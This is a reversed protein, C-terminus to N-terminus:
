EGTKQTIFVTVGGAACFRFKGAEHRDLVLLADELLQMGNNAAPNTGDNLFSIPGGRPIIEFRCAGDKLTIASVGSNANLLYLSTDILISKPPIWEGQKDLATIEVQASDFPTIGSPGFYLRMYNAPEAKFFRPNVTEGSIAIERILPIQEAAQWAADTNEWAMKRYFTGTTSSSFDSTGTAAQSPDLGTIRIMFIGSTDSIDITYLDHKLEDTVPGHRRAMNSVGASAPETTNGSEYRTVGNGDVTMLTFVWTKKGAMAHAPLLILIVLIAYIIRKM